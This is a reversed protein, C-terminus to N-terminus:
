SDHNSDLILCDDLAIDPPQSLLSRTESANISLTRRGSIGQAQQPVAKLRARPPGLANPPRVRLRVTVLAPALV